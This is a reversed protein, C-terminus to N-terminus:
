DKPYKLRAGPAGGGAAAKKAATKKKRGTAKKSNPKKVPQKTGVISELVVPESSQQRNDSKDM